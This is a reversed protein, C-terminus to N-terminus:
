TTYGRIDVFLVSVDSERAELSQGSEIQARIPEPVYRRLADSMARVEKAIEAEDFRRLEASVKDAVATLLTLDTATYIDGSRKQGLCLFAAIMDGRNMPVLVAAGLSDLVARDARSLSVSPHRRWREVEVSRSEWQLAAVLPAKGSLVPAVTRGRVFFPAFAEASRGYIVCSEPHLYFDLREGVLALVEQPSSCASIARLLHEVGRELAYREAFFVREIQPHLYRSAPVVLAALLLAVIFQGTTPDLGWATIGSPICAAGHNDRGRNSCDIYYYIRRDRRDVPRHRVPQFSHDRHFRM